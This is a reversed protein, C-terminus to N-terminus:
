RALKPVQLYLVVLACFIVLRLLVARRTLALVGLSLLTAPMGLIAWFGPTGLDSLRRASDYRVSELLAGAVPVLLAVLLLAGDHNLHRLFIFWPVGYLLVAFVAASVLILIPRNWHYLDHLCAALMVSLGVAAVPFMWQALGSAQHSTLKCRRFYLIGFLVAGYLPVVLLCLPVSSDLVGFMGWWLLLLASLYSLTEFLWGLWEAVSDRGLAAM